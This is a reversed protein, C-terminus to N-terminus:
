QQAAAKEARSKRWQLTTEGRKEWDNLPLHLHRAEMELALEREACGQPAPQLLCPSTLNKKYQCGPGGLAAQGLEFCVPPVFIGELKYTFM